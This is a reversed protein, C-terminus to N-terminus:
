PTWGLFEVRNGMWPPLAGTVVTLEGPVVKYFENLVPWGTEAPKEFNRGDYLDWIKDQFSSLDYLGQIPWAKSAEIMKRLAFRGDKQLVENADKRSGDDTSEGQVRLGVVCESGCM